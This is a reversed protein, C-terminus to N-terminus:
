LPFYENQYILIWKAQNLIFLLYGKWKSPDSFSVRQYSKVWVGKRALCLSASFSFNNELVVKVKELKGYTKWWQFNTMWKGLKGPGTPNIGFKGIVKITKSLFLKSCHLKNVNLLCFGPGWMSAWVIHLLLFRMDPQFLSVSWGSLWTSM